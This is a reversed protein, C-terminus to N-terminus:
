CAYWLVYMRVKGSCLSATSGATEEMVLLLQDRHEQVEALSRVFRRLVPALDATVHAYLSLPIYTGCSDIVVFTCV